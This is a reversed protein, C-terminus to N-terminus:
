YITYEANKGTQKIGIRWPIFANQKIKNIFLKNWNTKIRDNIGMQKIRLQELIFAMGYIWWTGVAAGASFLWWM